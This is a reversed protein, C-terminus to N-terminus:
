ARVLGVLKATFVPIYVLYRVGGEWGEISRLVYRNEEVCTGREREWVRM